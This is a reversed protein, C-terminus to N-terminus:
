IRRPKITSQRSGALRYRRFRAVINYKIYVLPPFPPSSFSSSLFSLFRRAFYGDRLCVAAVRSCLKLYVIFQQEQSCLAGCRAAAGKSSNPVIWTPRPRDLPGRHRVVRPSSDRWPRLTHVGFPLYGQWFRWRPSLYICPLEIQYPPHIYTYIHIYERSSSAENRHAFPLPYSLDLGQLYVLILDSADRKNSITSNHGLLFRAYLALATIMTRSEVSCFISARLPNYENVQQYASVGRGRQTVRM